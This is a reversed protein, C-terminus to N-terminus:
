LNLIEMWEQVQRQRGNVLETERGKILNLLLDHFIYSEKLLTFTTELAVYSSVWVRNVFLNGSSSLPAFVGKKEISEIKTVEQWVASPSDGDGTLVFLRDGLRVDGAQKLKIEEGELVHLYHNRTIELVASPTHIQVFVALQDRDHHFWTVLHSPIYGHSLSDFRVDVVDENFDLSYIPKGKNSTPVSVNSDVSFCNTYSSSELKCHWSTVFGSGNVNQTCDGEYYQPSSSSCLFTMLLFFAFVPMTSIIGFFLKILLTGFLVHPSFEHLFWFIEQVFDDNYECIRNRELTSSEM